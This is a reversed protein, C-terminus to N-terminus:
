IVFNTKFLVSRAERNKGNFVSQFITKTLNLDQGLKFVTLCARNKHGLISQMDNVIIEKEEPKMSTSMRHQELERSIEM